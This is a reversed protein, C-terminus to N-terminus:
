YVYSGVINDAAPANYLLNIEADTLINTYFRVDTLTVAINTTNFFGNLQANPPMGGWEFNTVNLSWNTVNGTGIAPGETYAIGLDLIGDLYQKTNALTGDSTLVFHHWDQTIVVPNSGENSNLDVTASSVGSRFAGITSFPGDSFLGCMNSGSGYVGLFACGTSQMAPTSKVWASLTVNTGNVFSTTIPTCVVNQSGDFTLAQNVIPNIGVDYTPKPSGHLFGTWGNGTADAITTSGPTDNVKYWAVLGRTVNTLGNTVGWAYLNQAESASIIHNTCILLYKIYGVFGGASTLCNGMAQFPIHASPISVNGLTYQGNLYVTGNAYSIDSWFPARQVTGNNLGIQAFNFGTWKNNAGFHGNFNVPGSNGPITFQFNTSNNAQSGYIQGFANGGFVNACLVWMSFLPPIDVTNNSLGSSGNFYAGLGTNTVTGLWTKLQIGIIEDTWTTVPGSAVDKYNWFLLAGPINTPNSFPAILVNNYGAPYVFSPTPASYTNFTALSLILLLSLKKM